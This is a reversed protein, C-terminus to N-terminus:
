DLSAATTTGEPAFRELLRSIVTGIKFTPITSRATTEGVKTQEHGTPMGLGLGEIETTVICARLGIREISHATVSLTGGDGAAFILSDPPGDPFYPNPVTVEQGVLAKGWSQFNNAVDLAEARQTELFAM